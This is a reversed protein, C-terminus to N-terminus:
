RAFLAARPAHPEASADAPLLETKFNRRKQGSPSMKMQYSPNLTLSVWRKVTSVGM